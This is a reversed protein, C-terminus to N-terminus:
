FLNEVILDFDLAPTITQISVADEPGLTYHEHIVGKPLTFKTRAPAQYIKGDLMYTVTGSLVEYDEDQLLHRHAPVRSGGPKFVLRVRTQAGGTMAANELIEMSDGKPLSRVKNVTPM